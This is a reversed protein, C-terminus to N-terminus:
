EERRWIAVGDAGRALLGLTASAPAPVQLATPDVADNASPRSKEGALLPKNPVTEYAYGTLMVGGGREFQVPVSMRAWGYHVENNILFKLGLYRNTTNVWPGFSYSMSYMGADAM